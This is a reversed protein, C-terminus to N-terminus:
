PLVSPLVLPRLFPLALPLLFPDLIAHGGVELNPVEGEEGGM